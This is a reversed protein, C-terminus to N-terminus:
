MINQSVPKRLKPPPHTKEFIQCRTRSFWALSSGVTVAAITEPEVRAEFLADAVCALGEAVLREGVFAGLEINEADFNPVNPCSYSETSVGVPLFTMGLACNKCVLVM